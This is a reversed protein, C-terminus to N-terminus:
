IISHLSFTCYEQRKKPGLDMEDNNLPGFAEQLLLKIRQARRNKRERGRLAQPHPLPPPYSINSIPKRQLLLSSIRSFYPVDLSRFPTFHFLFCSGWGMVEFPSPCIKAGLNCLKPLCFLCFFLVAVFCQAHGDSCKKRNFTRMEM